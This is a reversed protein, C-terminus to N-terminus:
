GLQRGAASVRTAQQQEAGAVQAEGGAKHPHKQRHQRGCNEPNNRCDAEGFRRGGHVPSNKRPRTNPGDDSIKQVVAYDTV